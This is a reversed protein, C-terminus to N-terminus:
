LIWAAKEMENDPHEFFVTNQLAALLASGNWIGDFERWFVILYKHLTASWLTSTLLGKDNMDAPVTFYKSSQLIQM